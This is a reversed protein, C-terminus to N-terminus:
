MVRNPLEPVQHGGNRVRINHRKSLSPRGQYSSWSVSARNSGLVQPALGLTQVGASGDLVA